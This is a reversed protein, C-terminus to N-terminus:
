KKETSEGEEKANNMQWKVLENLAALEKDKTETETETVEPPSVFNFFEVDHGIVRCQKIALWDTVFGNFETVSDNDKRANGDLTAQGIKIKEENHLVTGVYYQMRWVQEKNEPFSNIKVYEVREKISM